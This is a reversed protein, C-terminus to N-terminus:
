LLDELAAQATPFRFQFGLAQAKAPLVFAGQLLLADAMEGLLLRTAATTVFGPIPLM